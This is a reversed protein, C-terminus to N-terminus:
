SNYPLLNGAFIVIDDAYRMNNLREGNLLIRTEISQLVEGFSYESYLNFIALSKPM